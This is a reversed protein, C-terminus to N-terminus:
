KKRQAARRVLDLFEVADEPRGLDASARSAEELVRGLGVSKARPGERLIEAFQAVAAALRYSPSAEDASDLVQGRGLSEQSEVVEKTDPERYRLRVTALRGDAGHKLKLEYLVTVHHNAGVEGAGARDNRFDAHALRRNEYGLQRFEAV